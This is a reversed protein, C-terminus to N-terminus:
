GNKLELEWLAIDIAALRALRRESMAAFNRAVSTETKVLKMTNSNPVIKATFDSM